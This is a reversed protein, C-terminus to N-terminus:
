RNGSLVNYAKPFWKKLLLTFWIISLITACYSIILNPYAMWIKKPGALYVIKVFVSQVNVHLAFIFFFSNMYDRAEIREALIDIAHWFSFCFVILLIQNAIIPLSIFEYIDLMQLAMCILCSAVGMARIRKSSASHFIHFYYKGVVAGLAYFIVSSANLRMTQFTESAFLPLSLVFILFPFAIWKRSTFLDIVPTLIVFFILNFVFWFRGNCKYFFIAEILNSPTIWFTERGLFLHRIPTYTCFICFLMLLTNWCLYPIVLSKLRRKLKSTFASAKYDRFFTAGSILFFLPVAVKAITDSWLHDAFVVSSKGEEEALQLVYQDASSSHIFVVLLSLVFSVITKKKWYYEDVM